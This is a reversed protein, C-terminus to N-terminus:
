ISCNGVIMDGTYCHRANGRTAHIITPEAHILLKLWTVCWLKGANSRVRMTLTDGAWIIAAIGSFGAEHITLIFGAKQVGYLYHSVPM